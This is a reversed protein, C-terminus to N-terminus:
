AMINERPECRSMRVRPGQALAVARLDSGGISQQKAIAWRVVQFYFFSFHLHLYIKLRSMIFYPRFHIPATLQDSRFRSRPLGFKKKCFVPYLLVFYGARGCRSLKQEAGIYDSLGKAGNKQLRPSM